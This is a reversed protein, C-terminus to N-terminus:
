ATLRSFITSSLALRVITVRVDVGWFRSKGQSIGAAVVAGSHVMPGEKGTLTSGILKNLISPM